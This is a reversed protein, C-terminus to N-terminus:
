KRARVSRTASSQTKVTKVKTQKKETTKSKARKNTAARKVTKGEDRSKILTTDAAEAAEARAQLEERTPVWLNKDFSVLRAEISDQAHKLDDPDPFMQMLTMNRLNKTKYIEGK